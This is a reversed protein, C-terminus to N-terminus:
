EGNEERQRDSIIGKCSMVNNLYFQHRYFGSGDEFYKQRESHLMRTLRELDIEANRLVELLRRPFLMDFVLFISMFVLADLRTLQEARRSPSAQRHAWGLGGKDIPVLGYTINTITLVTYNIFQYTKRDSSYQSLLLDQIM